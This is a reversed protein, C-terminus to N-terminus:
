SILWARVDESKNVDVRKPSSSPRRGRQDYLKPGFIQRRRCALKLASRQRRKARNTCHAMRRGEIRRAVVREAPLTMLGLSSARLLADRAREGAALLVTGTGPSEGISGDPREFKIKPSIWLMADARPAYERFWAASTRDPMLAIGNGHEFFKGLWRRKHAQHGFPPNMWVFGSWERELGHSSLWAGCPVYRPGEPPAAVDLDFYESLGDFVYRPTYWEDSEGRTEYAAM